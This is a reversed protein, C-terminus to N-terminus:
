NRQLNREPTNSILDKVERVVVEAEPFLRKTSEIIDKAHYATSYENDVFATITLTVTVCDVM